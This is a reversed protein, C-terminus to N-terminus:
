PAVPKPFAVADFAALREEPTSTLNALKEELTDCAKIEEAAEDDDSGPDTVYGSNRYHEDSLQWYRHSDLAEKLLAIEAESLTVTHEKM